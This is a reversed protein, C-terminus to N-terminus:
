DAEGLVLDLADLPSMGRRDILRHLRMHQAATLVVLNDAANNSPDLDIHHVHEEPRLFRGLSTAAILRYEAVYGSAAAMPHDTGVLVYRRGKRVQIGGNWRPHDVGTQTGRNAASIKARVEPTRPVGRQSHSKLYRRHQGKLIGNRPDNQTAISTVGGCGCMCLGSPNPDASFDRSMPLELRETDRGRLQQERPSITAVMTTM